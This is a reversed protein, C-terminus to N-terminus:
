KNKEQKFKKDIEAWKNGKPHPCKIEELIYDDPNIDKMTRVEILEKATLPKGENGKKRYYELMRPKTASPCQCNTCGATKMGPLPEVEGYLPCKKCIAIRAESQEIPAPKGGRNIYGITQKLIWNKLSM